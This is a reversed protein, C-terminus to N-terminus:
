RGQSKPVAVTIARSSTNGGRDTCTITITYIRGSGNGAREARLRVHHEDIIEWDPSTDGDGTGNTPENSVVSLACTVPGCNNATSYSVMVDVMKHNPPWLVNKSVEVGVIQLPPRPTTNLLISLAGSGVTLVALDPRCDNNFDGAALAVPKDFFSFDQAPGVQFIDDTGPLISISNSQFNAVVLDLDGDLNFDGTLIARPDLGASGDTRAPGFTGDGNGLIISFIGPLATPSHLFALDLVGDRNLDGTTLAVAGSGSAIDFPSQFTGAGTGLAVSVGFFDINATAIDLNGDLNFDGTVIMQPDDRVVGAFTYPGFTGDGNSKLFSVNNSGVFVVVLDQKGDLNFDGAAIALPSQTTGTPLETPPSFNGNGAGFLIVVSDRAPVAMALDLNGDKNFDGTVLSFAPGNTAFGVEPGFSGNGSGLLVFVKSVVRDSFALDLNGDKNFDGTVIQFPDDTMLSRDFRSFSITQATANPHMATISIFLLIMLVLPRTKSKTQHYADNRKQNPIGHETTPHLIHSHSCLM